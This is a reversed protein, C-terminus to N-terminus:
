DQIYDIIDQISIEKHSNNDVDALEDLLPIIHKEDNVNDEILFHGAIQYDTGKQYGCAYEIAKLIFEETYYKTGDENLIIGLENYKQSDKAQGLIDDSYASEFGQEWQIYQESEKPYPNDEGEQVREHGLYYDYGEHYEKLSLNYLEKPRDMYEKYGKEWGDSWEFHEKTKFIYPNDIPTSLKEIKFHNYGELFEKSKEM